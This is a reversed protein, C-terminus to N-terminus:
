HREYPYNMNDHSSFDGTCLAHQDVCCLLFCLPNLYRACVCCLTCYCDSWPIIIFYYSVSVYTLEPTATSWKNILFSHDYKISERVSKDQNKEGRKQKFTSKIIWKGIVWWRMVLRHSSSTVTAQCNKSTLLVNWMRLHKIITKLIKHNNRFKRCNYIELKKEREMCMWIAGLVYFDKKKRWWRM